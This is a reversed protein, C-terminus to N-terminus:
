KFSLVAWLPLVHPSRGLSGLRRGASLAEQDGKYSVKDVTWTSTTSPYGWKFYSAAPSEEGAVLVVMGEFGSVTGKTCLTGAGFFFVMGIMVAGREPEFPYLVVACFSKAHDQEWHYFCFPRLPYSFRGPGFLFAYFRPSKNKHTHM